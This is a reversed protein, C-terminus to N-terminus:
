TMKKIVENIKENHGLVGKPYRLKKSKFGGRPPKLGGTVSAGRRKSIGKLLNITEETAEGWAAHNSVKKIMGMNSPTNELLAFSYMKKLRLMQFTDVIDQRTGVEGRMRVVVIM